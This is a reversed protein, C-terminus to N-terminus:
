LLRKRSRRSFIVLRKYVGIHKQMNIQNVSSLFLYLSPHMRSANEIEHSTPLESAGPRLEFNQCARFLVTCIANGEAVVGIGWGCLGRDM